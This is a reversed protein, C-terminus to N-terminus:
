DQVIIEIAGSESNHEYEEFGLTSESGSSRGELSPVKSWQARSDRM